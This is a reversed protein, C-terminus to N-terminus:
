DAVLLLWLHNEENTSDVHQLARRLVYALDDLHARRTSVLLCVQMCTIRRVAQMHQLTARSTHAQQEQEHQVLPRSSALVCALAAAGLLRHLRVRHDHLQAAAACGQEVARLLRWVALRRRQQAEPARQAKEVVPWTSHQHATGHSVLCVTHATLLRTNYDLM